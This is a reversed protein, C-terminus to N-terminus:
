ALTEKRMKWVGRKEYGWEECKENEVIRMEVSKMEVSRVGSEANEM